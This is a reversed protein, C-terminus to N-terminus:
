EYDTIRYEYEAIRHEYEGKLSEMTNIKEPKGRCTHRHISM